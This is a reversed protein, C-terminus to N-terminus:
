KRGFNQVWYARNNSDLAYGIGIENFSDRMINLCHGPSDIWGQVVQAPSTQGWAINEGTASGTYGEARMRDDPTVGEPSVHDFYDRTAMDEAHKQAAVGLIDNKQLPGVAPMFQGGCDRAETRAINTLAIVEGFFGDGTCTGNDCYAAGSCVNGCEGCNQRDAKIDVCTAEGCWTQGVGFCLCESDVCSAGRGCANTCEGCHNVDTSLDTCLMGCATHSEDSCVPGTPTMDVEPAMDEPEEVQSPMDMTMDPMDTTTTNNQEPEPEGGCASILLTILLYATIKTYTYRHM